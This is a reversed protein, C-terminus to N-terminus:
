SRGSVAIRRWLGFMALSLVISAYTAPEPIRQTSFSLDDAAFAENQATSETGFVIADFPSAGVIGLFGSTNPQLAQAFDVTMTGSGDFNGRVTLMGLSAPSIWDAGFAAIPSPFVWTIEKDNSMARGQYRGTGAFIANADEFANASGFHNYDEHTSVIGTDFTISAANAAPNDFHDTIFGGVAAEWAARDTYIAFAHAGTAPVLALVTLLLVAAARLRRRHPLFGSAHQLMPPSRSPFLTEVAM